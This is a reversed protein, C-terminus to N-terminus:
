QPGPTGARCATASLRGEPDLRALLAGAIAYLQGLQEPSLADLVVSRVTGRHGPTAADLLTRGADTIRANTARRDEPCPFREVLEREELRRVVHSLRPLTANTGSALATMRATGGPAAELVMLVLYEFHTLKADRLLQADLVPPLLEVVAVLRQWAALEDPEMPATNMAAANMAAANM